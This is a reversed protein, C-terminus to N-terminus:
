SGQWFYKDYASVLRSGNFFINNQKKPQFPTKDSRVSTTLLSRPFGFFAMWAKLSLAWPCVATHPRKLRHSTSRFDCVDEEDLVVSATACVLRKWFDASSIRSIVWSTTLRMTFSRKVCLPPSEIKARELDSAANKSSIISEFRHLFSKISKDAELLSLYTFSTKIEILDLVISWFICYRSFSM